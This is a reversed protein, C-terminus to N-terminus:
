DICWNKPVIFQRVDGARLLLFDKSNSVRLRQNKQSIASALIVQGYGEADTQLAGDANKLFWRIDQHPVPRLDDKTLITSITGESDRCLMQFHAVIFFLPKCNETKSYGFGVQCTNFTKEFYGLKKYDFDLGLLRQISVYDIEESLNNGTNKAAAKTVTEKQKNPISPIPRLKPDSACGGLGLLLFLIFFKKLVQKM